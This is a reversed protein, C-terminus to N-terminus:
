SMSWNLYIYAFEYFVQNFKHDKKGLRDQISSYHQPLRDSHEKNLSKQKQVNKPPASFEPPEKREPWDDSPVM